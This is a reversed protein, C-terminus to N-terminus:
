SVEASTIEENKRSKAPATPSLDGKHNFLIEGDRDARGGLVLAELLQLRDVLMARFIPASAVQLWQQAVVVPAVELLGDGLGYGRALLRTIIRLM